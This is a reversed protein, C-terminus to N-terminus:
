KRRGPLRDRESFALLALAAALGLLPITYSAHTANDATSAKATSFGAVKKAVTTANGFVANAASAEIITNGIGSTTSGANQASSVFRAFRSSPSPASADPATSVPTQSTGTVPDGASTNVGFSGAWDGFVNIFLIGFWNSLNLTSDAVNLVNVATDADGSTANGGITNGTVAADGSKARATITNNIALSNNTTDTANIDLGNMLSNSSGTGTSTIGGGLSAATTGTPADMILGVWHGLVNVFVLLDNTGVVKKGTLNMLTVNNKATGSTASGATTNRSVDANGSSAATTIDNNISKTSDNTDTIALNLNNDTTNTSNTGTSAIMQNLLSQPLLIDGNLNGNINITGVFSQGATITSNIINMLNVIAKADGSTADGGTTNDAVTANGTSAGVDIANNMTADTDNAQNITLKGTNTAANTSNTGTNTIASPDFMFDGNVDGNIDASFVATGPGFVNSSSQLLNAINALTTADGTAASGGATNYLVSANGTTSQSNVSNGATLMNTNTGNLTANTATNLGNTSGSGTNSIASGTSPSGSGGSSPTTANSPAAPVAPCNTAQGPNTTAVRTKYYNGTGPSYDYETKYWKGASCDYSYDPAYKAVMSNSAPYYTYYASIWTGSDCDFHFAAAESGTPHHIGPGYSSDAPPSCDDASATMGLPMIVSFSFLGTTAGYLM